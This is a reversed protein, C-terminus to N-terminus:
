PCPSSPSSSRSRWRGSGANWPSTGVGRLPTTVTSLNVKMPDDGRSDSSHHFRRGLTAPQPTAATTGGPGAATAGAFLGQDAPLMYSTAVITIKKRKLAFGQIVILRGSIALQRNRSNVLRSVNHILNELSYFNGEFKYQFPLPQLTGTAAGTATAGGAPTTASATTAGAAGTAGSAGTAGTAPTAATAAPAATALKDALDLKLEISRFDVGARAAADNLQVLLSPTEESAPVAKGLRGVSAYLAPFQVQAQAFQVKEQESQVLTQKASTLDKDLTSLKDRKPALGLFWYAGVAALAIAAILIYRDRATVKM